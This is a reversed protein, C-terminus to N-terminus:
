RSGSQYIRGDIKWGTFYYGSYVFGLTGADPLDAPEDWLYTLTETGGNGAGASFVLDYKSLKEEWELALADAAPVMAVVMVVAILLAFIQKIAKM